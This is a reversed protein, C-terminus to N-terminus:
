TSLHIFWALVLAVLLGLAAWDTRTARTQRLFTRTRYKGFCRGEMSVALADVKSLASVLLPLFLQRALTLFRRPSRVDYRVGRALQAQYVVNGEVEFVPALRLATILAFGYRYPLGARMLAYALASPETTLVFLMSLLILALFRGGVYVGSTLGAATVPLYGAGLPLLHFLVAGRRTFVTQIAFLLGATSALFRVGRVDRRLSLGAVPFALLALTLCLLVWWPGSVLFLALSGAILWTLKVLPHLRHFLSNKLQYAIKPKTSM